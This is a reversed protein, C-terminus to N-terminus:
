CPMGLSEISNMREVLANRRQSMWMVAYNRCDIERGVLADLQGKGSEKYLVRHVIWHGGDHGCTQAHFFAVIIFVSDM